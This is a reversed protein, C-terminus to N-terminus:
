KHPQPNTQQGLLQQQTQPSTQPPSQPSSQLLSTLPRPRLLHSTIQVLLILTLIPMQIRMSNSKISKLLSALRRMTLLGHATTSTSAINTPQPPTILVSGTGCIQPTPELCKSQKLWAKTFHSTEMPNLISSPSM